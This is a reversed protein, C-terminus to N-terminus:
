RLATREIYYLTISTVLTVLSLACLIGSSVYYCHLGYCTHIAVDSVNMDYIAGLIYQLILTAFGQGLQASGFNVAFHKVGFYEAMLVPGIVFYVALAAYSFYTVTHVCAVRYAYFIFILYVPVSLLATIICFVIRPIKERYIDSLVGVFLTSISYFWPAITMVLYLHQEKGFSRLYTGTNTIFVNYIAGGIIFTAMLLWFDLRKTIEWRSSNGEISTENQVSEDQTTAKKDYSQNLQSNESPTIQEKSENSDDDEDSMSKYPVGKVGAGDPPRPQLLYICCLSGIVQFIAGLIMVAEVNMWTASFQLFPHDATFLQNLSIELIFTHWFEM